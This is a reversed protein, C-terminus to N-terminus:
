LRAKKLHDYQVVYQEARKELLIKMVMMKIPQTVNWPTKNLQNEPFYKKTKYFIFLM